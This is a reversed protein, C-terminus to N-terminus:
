KLIVMKKLNTYDNVNLQYFYIGSSLNSADFEVTYSAASQQANVLTAVERGLIDFVTLTVFGAERLDYSIQTTPNFPNPYNQRLAYDDPVIVANASPTVTVIMENVEPIGNIDVDVLKYYYTTGNSLYRDLYSYTSGTPSNTAPIDNSVRTFNRNDLSRILYFHDNNTESATTWTLEVERNGEVATFSELEVPLPWDSNVCIQFVGCQSMWGSVVIYYTGNALNPLNCVEPWGPGNPDEGCICSPATFDGCVSLVALSVDWNGIPNVLVYLDPPNLPDPSNLTVEFVM